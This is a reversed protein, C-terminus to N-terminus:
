KIEELDAKRFPIVVKWNAGIRELEEVDTRLGRILETKRKASRRMSNLINAPMRRTKIVTRATEYLAGVEKEVCKKRALSHLRKWDKVHNFLCLAALVTRFDRTVVADVLANEVTYRGYAAHRFLPVLKIRSYRNIIDFMSTERKVDKMPSIVYVRKQRGGGQTRVFGEKRLRSVTNLASDRTIGLEEAVSEITHMGRLRDALKEPKM